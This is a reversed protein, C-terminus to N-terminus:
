IISITKLLFCHYLFFATCTIQKQLPRVALNTKLMLWSFPRFVLPIEAPTSILPVTQNTVCIFCSRQFICVLYALIVFLHESNICFAFFIRYSLGRFYTGCGLLDLKSSWHLSWQETRWSSRSTESLM